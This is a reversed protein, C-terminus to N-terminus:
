QSILPGTAVGARQKCPKQCLAHTSHVRRPRLRIVCGSKIAQVFHGPKGVACGRRPTRSCVVGAGACREPHPTAPGSPVCRGRQSNELLYLAGADARHGHRLRGFARACVLRCSCCSHEAACDPLQWTHAGTRDAAWSGVGDDAAACGPELQRRHRPRFGAVHVAAGLASSDVPPGPQCSTGCSCDCTILVM